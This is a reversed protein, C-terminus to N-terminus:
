HLLMDIQRSPQCIGVPTLVDELHEGDQSLSGRIRCGVERPSFSGHQCDGPREEGFGGQDQHIFGSLAQSGHEDGLYAVAEDLHFLGTDADEEHLLTKINSEGHAVLQQDHIPATNDLLKRTMVVEIKFLDTPEDHQAPGTSGSADDELKKVRDRVLFVWRGDPAFGASMGLYWGVDRSERLEDGNIVGREVLESIDSSSWTDPAGLALGPYIWLEQVSGDGLPALRREPGTELLAELPKQVVPDALALEVSEQGDDNTLNLVFETGTAEILLQTDGSAAAQSLRSAAAAVPEPVDPGVAGSEGCGGILAVVTAVAVIGPRVM